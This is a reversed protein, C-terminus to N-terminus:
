LGIKCCTPGKEFYMSQCDLRQVSNLVSTSIHRPHGNIYVLTSLAKASFTALEVSRGRCLRM